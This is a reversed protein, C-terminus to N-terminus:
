FCVSKVPFCLFPLNLHACFTFHEALKLAHRLGRGVQNVDLSLGIDLKQLRINRWLLTLVDPKLRYKLLYEGDGAIVAAVLEIEDAIRKVRRLLRIKLRQHIALGIGTRKARREAEGLALIHALLLDEKAVHGHHGGIPRKDYVACLAHDDRLEVTRGANRGLTLHM